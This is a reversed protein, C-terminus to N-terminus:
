LSVISRPNFNFRRFKFFVLSLLDGNTFSVFPVDLVFNTEGLREEFNEQVSIVNEAHDKGLSM